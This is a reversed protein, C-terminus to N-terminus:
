RRAVAEFYNRGKWNGTEGRLHRLASDLTMGTYLLATVPLALAYGWGLGYFRTMPRYLAAMGIWLSGGVIIRASNGTWLGVGFLLPACLYIWAMGLVAGALLFWSYFLQTFATRAVMNWLPGLRDYARLSHVTDTMGLWTRGGQVKVARALACDDIIASRIASLGGIKNLAEARVLVCGGAAAATRARPDNSWAFPYLKQFFFVYAPVLLKEWISRCRLKVMLSVLDRAEERAQAVLERVSGPHHLIDADTFVYYESSPNEGHERSGGELEGENRLFRLGQDLAWLKGAWGRELPAADLVHFVARSGAAAGVARSGSAAGIARAIKATDDSSHDNILVVRLPGAYDQNLLAPLTRPLVEAENRAPVIVCVSPNGPVDPPGSRLFPGVRWFRGRLMALYMWGLAVSGAVCWEWFHM